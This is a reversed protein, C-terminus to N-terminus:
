KSNRTSKIRIITLYITIGTLLILSIIQSTSLIGFTGRILDGRFFELIFRLISYTIFYVPWNIFDSNKLYIILLVLALIFISASEIAQVPFLKINCPAVYSDKYIFYLIGTTEKGFCCGTLACGIRGCAHAIALCITLINIYKKIQISHIKQVLFLAGFGGILGGYYVYGACLFEVFNEMSSFTEAWDIYKFTVIAYLLKAGIFGFSLLYAYLIILEDGSLKNKKCLLLGILFSSVVGIAICFGYYPIFLGFLHFGM